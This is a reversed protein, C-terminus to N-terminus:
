WVSKDFIKANSEIDSLNFMHRRAQFLDRAIAADVDHLPPRYNGLLPLFSLSGSVFYEDSKGMLQLLKKLLCSM